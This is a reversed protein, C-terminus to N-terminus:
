KVRCHWALVPDYEATSGYGSGREGMQGLRRAIEDLARMQEEVSRLGTLVPGQGRFGAKGSMVTRPGNGGFHGSLSM